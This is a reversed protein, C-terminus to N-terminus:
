KEPTLIEPYILWDMCWFGSELRELCIIGGNHVAVPQGHDDGTLLFAALREMFPQHGVLMISSEAKRLSTAWKRPDSEPNLDDGKKIGGEARIAEQLIEATQRARLKGSHIIIEADVPKHRKIFSVMRKLESRGEESLSREPDVGKFQAKAHQVLYVKM